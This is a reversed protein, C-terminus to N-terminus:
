SYKEITRVVNGDEVITRTKTTIKTTEEVKKPIPKGKTITEKAM